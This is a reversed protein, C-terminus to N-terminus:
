ALPLVVAEKADEALPQAELEAAADSCAVALPALAEACRLLLPQAEADREGTALLETTLVGEPEGLARPEKVGGAVSAGLLLRPAVGHAEEVRVADRAGVLLELTEGARVADALTKGAVCHGLTDPPALPVTYAVCVGRGGVPEGAAVADGEVETVRDLEAEGRREAEEEARDVAGAEGEEAAEGLTVGEGLTEELGEGEGLKEVAGEAVCVMSVAGEVEGVEERSAVFEGESVAEPPAVGEKEPLGEKVVSGVAEAGVLVGQPLAPLAVGVTTAGESVAQAERDLRPLALSLPLGKADEQALPVPPAGLPVASTAVPEGRADSDERREGETDLEGRPLPLPLAQAEAEGDGKALAYPVAEGAGELGGVCLLPADAVESSVLEGVGLALPARGVSLPAGVILLPLVLLARALAVAGGLPLPVNVACPEGLPDGLLMAVGERPGPVAEEVAAELREARVLGEPVGVGDKKPVAVADGRRVVVKEAGAEGVALALTAVEEGVGDAHADGDTVAEALTDPQVLPEGPPPAVAEGEAEGLARALPEDEREGSGEPEGEAVGGMPVPVAVGLALTQEETAPLGEGTAERELEWEGEIVLLARMLPLGLPLLPPPPLLLPVAVTPPAVREGLAEALGTTEKLVPEETDGPAERQPLPETLPVEEGSSDGEAPKVGDRVAGGLAEGASMAAPCPEPLAEAEAEGAEDGVPLALSAALGERAAEEEKETLAAPEGEGDGERWGLAERGAEPLPVTDPLTALVPVAVALRVGEGVGVADGVPVGERVGVGVPVGEKVGVMARVGLPVPVPVGVGVAEEEEVGEGVGDGEAVRGATTAASGSATSSAASASADSPAAPLLLLLLLPSPLPLAAEAAAAAASPVM